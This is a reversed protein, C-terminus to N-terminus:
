SSALDTPRDILGARVKAKQRYKAAVKAGYNLLPAEVLIFMLGAIISSILLLLVYFVFLWVPTFNAHGFYNMFLQMLGFLVFMHVLYTGYSIRALPYWYRHSFFRTIANDVFLINLLVLGTSYAMVSFQFVVPFAGGRTLGGYIWVSAAGCLGLVGLLGGFKKCVRELGQRHIVYLYAILVGVFLEDFRNHSYYYFGELLRLSPDALYQLGRSLLPILVLLILGILGASKSRFRYLLWLLPPLLIYFHEEVCLSWGWSLVSPQNGPRVYNVLYLYNAWSVSFLDNWDTTMYLFNFAPIGLPAIVFLSITVVLYYAPFIRFSRRILFPVYYMKRETSLDRILMRGILFGSLVFFIDIGSWFGNCFRIIWEYQGGGPKIHNLDAIFGMFLACHYFLVICSAFGRLGDLGSFNSSVPVFIDRLGEKFFQRIAM